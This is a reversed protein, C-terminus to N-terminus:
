ESFHLSTEWFVLLTTAWAPVLVGGGGDGLETHQTGSLLHQAQEPSGRKFHLYLYSEKKEIIEDGTM